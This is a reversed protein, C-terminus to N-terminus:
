VRGSNKMRWLSLICRLQLLVTTIISGVGFFIMEHKIYRIIRTQQYVNLDDVLTQLGREDMYNRFDQLGTMLIFVFLVGTLIIILKLWKTHAILSLKFMLVYRAFTIFIVIFAINEFYFPYSPVKLRIPTMALVVVAATAVLWLLEVKLKHKRLESMTSRKYRACSVVFALALTSVLASAVSVSM